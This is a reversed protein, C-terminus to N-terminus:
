LFVIFFFTKNLYGFFIVDVIQCIEKYAKQWFHGLNKLLFAEVMNLPSKFENTFKSSFIKMHPFKKTCNELM